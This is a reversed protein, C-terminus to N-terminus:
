QELEKLSAYIIDEIQAVLANKRPKSPILDLVEKFREILKDHNEILNTLHKHSVVCLHSGDTENLNDRLIDISKQISVM